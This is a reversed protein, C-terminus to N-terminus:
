IEDKLTKLVKANPDIPDLKENLYDIFNTATIIGVTKNGEKVILHRVKKQLMLNAAMEVSSNSNITTLPSTMLHHIMFEKSLVDHTCVGRTIDRETIIGISQGSEDVVILSSVNKDLMKKAADKASDSTQITEVKTSMIDSIQNMSKTVDFNLINQNWVLLGREIM